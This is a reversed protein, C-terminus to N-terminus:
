AARADGGPATVAVGQDTYLKLKNRLTRISIGLREAARTRNGGLSELAAFIIVFIQAAILLLVQGPNNTRRAFGPQILVIWIANRDGIKPRTKRLVIRLEALQCPL